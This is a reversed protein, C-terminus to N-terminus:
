PTAREFLAFQRYSGSGTFLRMLPASPGFSDDMERYVYAPGDLCPLRDTARARVDPEFLVVAYVGTCGRADLDAHGPFYGQTLAQTLEAAQPDQTVTPLLLVRVDLDSRGTHAVHYLFSAADEHNLVPDAAIGITAGRPARAALDLAIHELQRTDASFRNAAVWTSPAFYTLVVVWLGLCAVALRRHGARRLWTLGAAMAAVLALGAPLVYRGIAFTGTAQDRYLLLQPVIVLAALAGISWFGRRDVSRTQKRFRSAMAGLLVPFLAVGGLGLLLVLNQRDALTFGLTLTRVFQGGYTGSGASHAVVYLVGLLLPGVATLTAAPWAASRWAARLSGNRVWGLYVRLAALGPLALVFSEKTLAAALAGAVFLVDWRVAVSRGRSHPAVGAARVAAWGAILLFFTGLGEQPGLQIWVTSAYPIALLWAGAFFAADRDAGARRLAVQLILASAIGLAVYLAHWAFPNDGLLTIQVRRIAWYLPRLRGNAADGMLRVALAPPPVIQPHTLTVRSYELIGHDDVLAFEASLTPALLVLGLVVLAAGAWLSRWTALWSLWSRARWNIAVGRVDTQEVQM